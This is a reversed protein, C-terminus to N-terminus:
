SGSGISRAPGGTQACNKKLGSIPTVSRLSLALLAAITLNIPGEVNQTPLPSLATNIEVQLDM